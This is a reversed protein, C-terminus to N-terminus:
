QVAENPRAPVCSLDDVLTILFGLFAATFRM